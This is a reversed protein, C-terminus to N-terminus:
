VPTNILPQESHARSDPGLVVSMPRLLPFEDRLVAVQEDLRFPDAHSVLELVSALVTDTVAGFRTAAEVLQQHIRGAVAEQEAADSAGRRANGTELRRGLEVLARVNPLEADMRHVVGSLRHRARASSVSEVARDARSVAQECRHLPMAWVDRSSRPLPQGGHPEGGHIKGGHAPVQEPVRAHEESVRTGAQRGYAALVATAGLAGAALAVLVVQVWFDLMVGGHM